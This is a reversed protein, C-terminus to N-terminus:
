GGIMKVVGTSMWKPAKAYATVRTKWERNGTKVVVGIVVFGDVGVCM